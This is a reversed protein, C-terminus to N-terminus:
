ERLSSLRAQEYAFTKAFAETISTLEFPIYSKLKSIDLSVQQVDTPMAEVFEVQFHPIRQKVLDIIELLRMTQGSGINITQNNVQAALLAMMARAIDAAFLYDKAQSGDGWVVFTEGRLAKRIAINIVGQTESRHHLGFPNSLRLILYNIQYLNAYLRIYHEVALKIIGYSSIPQCAQDEKKQNPAENGYVAGGSSLYVIQQCGFAKMVEMLGITPLLNTEIDAQINQTSLAPIISSAFHFVRTFQHKEFLHQLLESDAYDGAVFLVDPFQIASEPIEQSLVVIEPANETQNQVFELLNYGLFGAGGVLLIKDM